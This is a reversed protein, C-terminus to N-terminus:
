SPRQSLENVVDGGEGDENEPRQSEEFDHMAGRTLKKLHSVSRMDVDLELQGADIASTGVPRYVWCEAFPDRGEKALEHDINLMTLADRYRIANSSKVSAGRAKQSLTAKDRTSLEISNLSLIEFFASEPLVDEKNQDLNAFLKRLKQKIKNVKKM